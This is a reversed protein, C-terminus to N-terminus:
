GPTRPASGGRGQAAWVTPFQEVLLMADAMRREVTRDSVRQVAGIEAAIARIAHDGGDPHAGQKAIDIALRNAIALLGDRAAQMSALTQDALRLMEVLGALATMQSDTADLLATM